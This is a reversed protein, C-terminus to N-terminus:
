AHCVRRREARASRNACWERLLALGRAAREDAASADTLPVVNVGALASLPVFSLQAPRFGADRALFAGLEARAAEFRPRSWADPRTADLKNVAVVVHAVGLARLLVAHEKTQGGRAFGAEFEGALGSVVLLAADARAAGSIMAPVFDRHGPADLLALSRGAPTTVHKEAVDITVGRAREASSEDALWALAFSGKGEASADRALRQATRADVAGLTRLLRFKEELTGGEKVM